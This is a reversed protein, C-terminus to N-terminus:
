LCLNVLAATHPWYTCRCLLEGVPASSAVPTVKTHLLCHTGAHTMVNPSYWGLILCSISQSWSSYVGRTEHTIFMKTKNFFLCVILSVFRWAVLFLSQVSGTLHPYTPMQFFIAHILFWLGLRTANCSLCCVSVVITLLSWTWESPRYLLSMDCSPSLLMFVCFDHWHYAFNQMVVAEPKAVLVEHKSIFLVFLRYKHPVYRCGWPLRDCRHGAIVLYTVVAGHCYVTVAFIVSLSLKMVNLLSYKMSEFRVISTPYMIAAGHCITMAMVLLSRTHLSLEMATFPWLLFLRYRTSWAKSVFLLKM